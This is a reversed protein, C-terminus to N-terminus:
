NTLSLEWRRMFEDRVTKIERDVVNQMTNMMREEMSILRNDVHSTLNDIAALVDAFGKECKSHASCESCQSNTKVNEKDTSSKSTDKEGKRKKYVYTIDSDSEDSTLHRKREENVRGGGTTISAMVSDVFAQSSEFEMDM